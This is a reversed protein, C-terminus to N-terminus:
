FKETIEFKNQGILYRFEFEAFEIIDNYVSYLTGTAAMNDLERGEGIYSHEFQLYSKFLSPIDKMEVFPQLRWEGDSVHYDEVFEGISFDVRFGTLVLTKVKDILIDDM